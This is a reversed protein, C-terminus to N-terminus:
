RRAKARPRAPAASTGMAEALIGGESLASLKKDAAGEEDLTAQLLAAVDTLGLTEAIARASGYASIEYHEVCQAARILGADIVSAEGDKDLLEKGEEILGEMGKCKKGGPKIELMAGIERLREVHEKTEALHDSFAESLEPSSAAKAMRPLAKVLQGEASYLDKIQDELLGRLSDMGM